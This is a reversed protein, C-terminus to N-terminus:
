PRSDPAPERVTEVEIELRVERAVVLRGTPGVANWRLGWDLRDVEAWARFVAKEHGWPDAVFGVYEVHLEVPRTIGVLTLDGVITARDGDCAFGPRSRFTMEPFREVDFWDPSRLHDDRVQSGSDVSATRVTVEVYSETPDDAVHVVGEVDNFRGRVRTLLFHRGVFEVFAHGPDIRWRGAAPLELGDITRTPSPSVTSTTM